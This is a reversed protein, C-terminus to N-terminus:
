LDPQSTQAPGTAPLGSLQPLRKFAREHKRKKNLWEREYGFTHPKTDLMAVRNQAFTADTPTTTEDAFVWPWTLTNTRILVLGLITKSKVQEPKFSGADPHHFSKL